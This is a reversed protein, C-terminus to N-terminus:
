DLGIVDGIRLRIGDRQLTRFGQKTASIQYGGPPLAFFHYGGEADSEFTLKAETGTNTLEVSAGSVALGSPDKLIGFLEAKASQAHLASLNVVSSAVFVLLCRRGNRTMM